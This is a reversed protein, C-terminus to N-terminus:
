LPYCGGRSLEGPFHQPYWRAGAALSDARATWAGMEALHNAGAAPDVRAVVAKPHDAGAAVADATAWAPRNVEVRPHDAAGDAGAVVAEGPPDM